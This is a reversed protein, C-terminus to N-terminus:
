EVSKYKNIWELDQLNKLLKWFSTDQFRDVDFNKFAYDKYLMQMQAPSPKYREQAWGNGRIFEMQNYRLKWASDISPCSFYEKTTLSDVIVGGDIGHLALLDIRERNYISPWKGSAFYVFDHYSLNKKLAQTRGNNIYVQIQFISGDSQFNVRLSFQTCPYTPAIVSTQSLWIFGLLFFLSISKVFFM